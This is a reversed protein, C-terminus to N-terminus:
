AIDTAKLLKEYKDLQFFLTEVARSDPEKSLDEKLGTYDLKLAIGLEYAQRELNACFPQGIVREANEEIAIDMPFLNMNSLLSNGNDFVPSPLYINEKANAILGINNFHRDTNLILMDFSLLEKLYSRLDVGTHKIVFDIVFEIRDKVDEFLRIHESLQGGCYIDYLRQLSIFSESEKLFNESRCGNIENIKCQEYKVYNKINSHKLVISSLYEAKGEYGTLDKKYWYGKDYYKEQTGISSGSVMVMAEPSLTYNNVTEM